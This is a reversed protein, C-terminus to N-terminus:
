MGVENLALTAKILCFPSALWYLHSCKRLYKSFEHLKKPVKVLKNKSRNGPSVSVTSSNSSLIVCFFIFIGLIDVFFEPFEMSFLKPSSLIGSLCLFTPLDSTTTCQLLCIHRSCHVCLADNICDIM